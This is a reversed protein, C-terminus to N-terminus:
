ETKVSERVWKLYRESIQEAPVSVIEPTEYSHNELIFREVEAYKEPLTKILLLHESDQQLEGQWVYISKMPSLIQVCAALHGEILGNALREAEAEESVTTFIIIM